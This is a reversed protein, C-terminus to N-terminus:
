IAEVTKKSNNQNRNKQQQDKINTKSQPDSPLAAAISDVLHFLTRHFDTRLGLVCLFLLM